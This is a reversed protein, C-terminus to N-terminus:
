SLSPATAVVAYRAKFRLIPREVLAYSLWAVLMTAAVVVLYLGVEAAGGSLADPLAHRKAAALAFIVLPHYIYIGFSIKGVFDIAPYDLWVRGNGSFALRVVAVTTVAAVIEHNVLPHVQFRDVAVLVLMALAVFQVIPHRCLRMFWPVGGSALVAGIAGILMCDFRNVSFILWPLDPGGRYKWYGAAAKALMFLVVVASIAPLPRKLRSLMLPWVAYFQEEVGLSWYHDMLPLSDGRIFPVNALLALYFIVSGPLAGPMVNVLVFSTVALYLYYLPWIRLIRRMYFRRVDIRGTAERERILLFTILFGSLAFFATVGYQALLLGARQPLGFEGLHLRLHSVVVAVAAIARVGNLGPLHIPRASDADM